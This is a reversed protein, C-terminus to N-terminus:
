FIFRNGSTKVLCILMYICINVLMYCSTKVKRMKGEMVESGHLIQAYSSENGEGTSKGYTKLEKSNTKM